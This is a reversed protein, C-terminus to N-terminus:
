EAIRLLRSAGDLATRGRLLHEILHKRAEEGNGKALAEVIARHEAVTRSQSDSRVEKARMAAMSLPGSFAVSLM